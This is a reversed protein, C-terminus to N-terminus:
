GSERGVDAHANRQLMEAAEIVIIVVVDAAVPHM